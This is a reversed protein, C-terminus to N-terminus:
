TEGVKAGEWLRIGTKDEGIKSNRRKAEGLRAQRRSRGGESVGAKVGIKPRKVGAKTGKPGPKAISQGPRPWLNSSVM